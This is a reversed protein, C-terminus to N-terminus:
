ETKGRLTKPNDYKEWDHGFHAIIQREISEAWMHDEYYPCEPNAGPASDDPHEMDWKDIQEITIGRRMCSYAELQEHMSIAHEFDPNELQSIRFEKWGEGVEFYDGTTDYRHASRPIVLIVANPIHKFPLEM